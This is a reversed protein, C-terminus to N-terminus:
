RKVAACSALFDDFVMLDRPGVLPAIVRAPFGTGFLYPAGTRLLLDFRDKGAKLLRVFTPVFEDTSAGGEALTLVRGDTIQVQVVRALATDGPAGSPRVLLLGATSPDADTLIRQPFSLRWRRVAGECSLLLLGAPGTASPVPALGTRLITIDPGFRELVWGDSGLTFRQDPGRAFPAAGSQSFTLAPVM